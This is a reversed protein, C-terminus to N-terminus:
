SNNMHWSHQQGYWHKDNPLKTTGKSSIIIHQCHNITIFLTPVHQIM